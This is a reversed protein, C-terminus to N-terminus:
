QRLPSSLGCEFIVTTTAGNATVTGNLTAGSQTIATAATTTATPPTAEAASAGLVLLISVVLPAIRHQWTSHKM